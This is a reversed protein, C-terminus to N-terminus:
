RSLHYVAGHHKDYSTATRDATYKVDTVQLNIVGVVILLQKAFHLKGTSTLLLSSLASFFIVTM